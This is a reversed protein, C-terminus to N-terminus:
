VLRRLSAPSRSSQLIHLARISQLLLAELHTGTFSNSFSIISFLVFFHFLLDFSFQLSHFSCHFYVSKNLDARFLLWSDHLTYFLIFFTPQLLITWVRVICEPVSIYTKTSNHKVHLSSSYCRVHQMYRVDPLQFKFQIPLAVPHSCYSLATDQPVRQQLVSQAM